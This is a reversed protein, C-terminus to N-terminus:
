SSYVRQYDLYLTGNVSQNIGLYRVFVNYRTISVVNGIFTGDPILWSSNLTINRYPMGTANLITANEWGSSTNMIQVSFNDGSVNYKLQLESSNSEPINTTNTTINLLFTTKKYFVTVNIMDVGLNNNFTSNTWNYRIKIQGGGTDYSSANGSAGISVNVHESPTIGGTFANTLISEWINSTTNLISVNTLADGYSSDNISISQWTSNPTTETFNYTINLSYTAPVAKFAATQMSYDDSTSSTWGLAQTGANAQLYYQSMGKYNTAASSNIQTGPSTVIPATQLGTFMGAVIVDGNATTTVSQNPNSSLANKSANIDLASVGTASKFTSVHYSIARSTAANPVSVTYASGTDASTLLLYWMESSGEPTSTYRNRGLSTFSKGNFTPNGATRYSAGATFITLVMVSAGSGATFSLNGPNANSWSTTRYQSKNDFTHAASVVDPITIDIAGDSETLNSSNYSGSQTGTTIQKAPNMIRNSQSAVKSLNASANGDSANKANDKNTVTGYTPTLFDFVYTFLSSTSATCNVWISSVNGSNKVTRTSIRHSSNPKFYSSNFSQNGKAAIGNPFGDIYIQVSDLDPDAPDTWTWNIYLPMYTANTLNTVSSPPTTDVVPAVGPITVFIYETSNIFIGDPRSSNIIFYYATSSSLGTLSVNHSSNTINSCKTYIYNGPVTGYHVCGSSNVKTSTVNYNFVNGTKATIIINNVVDWTIFATNNTINSAKVGTITLGSATTTNLVTTAVGSSDTNSSNPTLYGDSTGFTVNENNTPPKGLGDKLTANITYNLGSESYTLSLSYGMSSAPYAFTTSKGSATADIYYFGAGSTKLVVSARGDIGSIASEQLLSATANANAPKRSKNISFRVLENPVPNNYKDQVEAVLTTFGDVPLYINDPTIKVVRYPPAHQPSAQSTTSLYAEGMKIVSTNIYAIVIGTNNNALKVDGGGKRIGENWWNVYEPKTHLILWVNKGIVSNKQQSTPYINVSRMEIGSITEPGIPKVSLLYITGNTIAVQSSSSFNSSSRRIIGHEYIFSNYKQGMLAYTITSTTVNKISTEDTMGDPFMENYRVEAWTNEKLDLSVFASDRPNYVLFKPSYKFGMSIPLSSTTGSQITSEISSKLEKFDNFMKQIHDLEEQTNWVPIFNLQVSTLITVGIALMLIAGIVPSVANENQQLSKDM